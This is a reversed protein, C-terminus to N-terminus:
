KNLENNGNRKWFNNSKSKQFLKIIEEVLYFEVVIQTKSIIELLGIVESKKHRLLLNYFYSFYKAM